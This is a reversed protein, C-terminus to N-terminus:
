RTTLGSSNIEKLISDLFENQLDADRLMMQAIKNEHAASKSKHDYRGRLFADGCIEIHPSSLVVAGKGVRQAIVAPGHEYSAYVEVDDSLNEFVPGAAYLTLFKQEGWQLPVANYWSKEIDKDELFDFVPGVAKTDMFALERKGAIEGKNWDISNCAYYAGACIGIYIGGDEVYRRIKDNGAGNLKECYYLDAGGPMIFADFVDLAGDIIDQADVMQAIIDRSQLASILSGNNHVYDQYVAIVTM